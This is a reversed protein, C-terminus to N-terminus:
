LLDSVSIWVFSKKISKIETNIMIVNKKVDLCFITADPNTGLTVLKGSQNMGNITVTYEMNLPIEEESPRYNNMNVTPNDFVIIIQYPNGESTFDFYFNNADQKSIKQKSIRKELM